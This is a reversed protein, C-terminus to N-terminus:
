EGGGRRQRRGVATLGVFGTALLLVTSPVPVAAATFSDSATAVTISTNDFGLSLFRATPAGGSVPATIEIRPILAILGGGGGSAPDPLALCGGPGSCGLPDPLAVLSGGKDPDPLGVFDIRTFDFTGNSFYFGSLIFKEDNYKYYPSGAAIGELVGKWTFAYRSGPGGAEPPPLSISVLDAMAFTSCSLVLLLAGVFSRLKKM